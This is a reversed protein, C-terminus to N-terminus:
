NRVKRKTNKRVKRKSKKKFQRTKRKSIIEDRQRVHQQGGTIGREEALKGYADNIYKIMEEADPSSNKDPHYQLAM